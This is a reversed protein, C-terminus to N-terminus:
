GTELQARSRFGENLNNINSFYKFREGQCGGGSQGDHFNFFYAGGCLGLADRGVSVDLTQTNISISTDSNGDCSSKNTLLTCTLCCGDDDLEDPGFLHCTASQEKSTCWSCSFSHTNSTQERKHGRSSICNGRGKERERERM